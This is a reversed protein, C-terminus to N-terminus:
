EPPLSRRREDSLQPICAERITKKRWEFTPEKMAFKNTEEAVVSYREATFVANKETNLAINKRPNSASKKKRLTLVAGCDEKSM